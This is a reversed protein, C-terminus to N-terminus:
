TDGLDVEIGGTWQAILNYAVAWFAGSVFGAAGLIVPMGILAGFALITGYSLGPTHSSVVWGYSVLIDLMLGGCSYAIGVLLGITAMFVGQFKALSLPRIKKLKTM